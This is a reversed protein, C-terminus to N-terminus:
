WEVKERTFLRHARIDEEVEETSRGDEWSGNLGSFPDNSKTLSSVTGKLSNLLKTALDIKESDSLSNLCSMYIDSINIASNKM